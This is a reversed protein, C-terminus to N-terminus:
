SGAARPFPQPLLASASCPPSPPHSPPPSPPTVQQRGVELARDLQLRAAMLQEENATVVQDLEIAQRHRAETQVRDSHASPMCASPHQHASVPASLHQCASAPASLRQYASVPASPRQCASVPASLRQCASILASLHQFLSSFM